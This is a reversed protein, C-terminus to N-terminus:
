DLGRMKIPDEQPECEGCFLTNAIVLARYDGEHAEYLDTIYPM